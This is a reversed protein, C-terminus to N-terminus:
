GYARHCVTLFIRPDGLPPSSQLCPCSLSADACWTVCVADTPGIDKSLGPLERPLEVAWRCPNISKAPRPGSHGAAAAAALSPMAKGAEDEDVDILDPEKLHSPSIIQRGGYLDDLRHFGICEKELKAEITLGSQLEGPALCYKVGTTDYFKIRTKKYSSILSKFRTKVQDKVWTCGCKQNVFAALDTFATEKKSKAGAQVNKLKAQARGVIVDFNTTGKNDIRNELWEIMAM